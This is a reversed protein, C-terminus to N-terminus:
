VTLAAAPITGDRLRRFRICLKGLLSICAMKHLAIKTYGKSHTSYVISIQNVTIQFEPIYIYLIMFFLMCVRGNCEHFIHNFDSHM